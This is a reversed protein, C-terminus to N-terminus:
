SLHRHKGEDDFPRGDAMTYIDEEPEQLFEFARNTSAAYLWESETIEESVEEPILV